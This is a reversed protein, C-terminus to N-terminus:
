QLLEHSERRHTIERGGDALLYLTNFYLALNRNLGGSLEIASYENNNPM